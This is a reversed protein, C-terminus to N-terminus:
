YLCHFIICRFQIFQLCGAIQATQRVTPSSDEGERRAMVAATCGTLDAAQGGRVIRVEWRHAASDGAALPQRYTKAPNEGALDITQAIIFPDM